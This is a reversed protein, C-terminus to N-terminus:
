VTRGDPFASPIPNRNLRALLASEHQADESLLMAALARTDLDRVLGAADLNARMAARELQLAGDLGSATARPAPAGARAGAARLRGAHDRERAALKREGLRDYASALALAAALAPALLDADPPPEDPAGCGAAVLAGAGAAALFGRRNVV